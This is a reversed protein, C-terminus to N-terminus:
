SECVIASVEVISVCFAEVALLEILETGDDAGEEFVSVRTPVEMGFGAEFGFAEESCPGLAEVRWSFTDETDLKEASSSSSQRM